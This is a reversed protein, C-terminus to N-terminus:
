LLSVYPKFPLSLLHIYFTPPSVQTAYHIEPFSIALIPLPHFKEPDAGM